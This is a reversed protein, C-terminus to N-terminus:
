FLRSELRVHTRKEKGGRTKRSFLPLLIGVETFYFDHTPVMDLVPFVVVLANGFMKRVPNTENDVSVVFETAGEAGKGM